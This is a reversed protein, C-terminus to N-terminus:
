LHTQVTTSLLHERWRLSRTAVLRRQTSPAQALVMINAATAWFLSWPIVILLASMKLGRQSKFGSRRRGASFM